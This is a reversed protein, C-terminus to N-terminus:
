RLYGLAKLERRLKRDTTPDSDETLTFRDSLDRADAMMQDYRRRLELAEPPPDGQGEWPTEEGDGLTLVRTPEEGRLDFAIKWHRDRASARRGKQAFRVREERWAARGQLPPLLDRGQFSYPPEVGLASFITPMVDVAEVPAAIRRSAIGPIKVILPIRLQLEHLEGHGWIGNEGLSQGHDSLFVILTSDYLGLDRLAALLRGIFDDVYEVEAAYLDRVLRVEEADLQRDYIKRWNKRSPDLDGTYWGAHKQRYRQPPNYSGHVQYNHVFLFYPAEVDQRLWELVRRELVGLPDDKGKEAVAYTDFGNGIGYKPDLQGGGVFAGTRFGASRLAEVPSVIDERPVSRVATKHVGPYLSYFISKHSIATAPGQALADEFLVAEAALRDINPTTTRSPDYCGLYDPRLTDVSILLVREVGALGRDGDDGSCGLAVILCAGLLWQRRMAAANQCLLPPRFRGGPAEHLPELTARAGPNLRLARPGAGALGHLSSDGRHYLRQSSTAGATTVVPGM